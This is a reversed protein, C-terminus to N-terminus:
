NVGFMCGCNPCYEIYEPGGEDAVIRGHVLCYVGIGIHGQYFLGHRGCAIVEAEKDCGEYECKKNKLEVIM